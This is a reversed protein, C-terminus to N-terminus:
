LVSVLPNAVSCEKRFARFFFRSRFENLNNASNFETAKYSQPGQKRAPKELPLPATIVSLKQLSGVHRPEQGEEMDEFGVVVSKRRVSLIPYHVQILILQNLFTITDIFDRGVQVQVPMQNFLQPCSDQPSMKLIM